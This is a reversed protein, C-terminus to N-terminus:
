GILGLGRLSKPADTGVMVYDRLEVEMVECAAAVRRAALAEVELAVPDGEHGHRVLIVSVADLAVARRLVRAADVNGAAGVSEQAIARDRADLFIARLGAPMPGAEHLHALIANPSRLVPLEAQRLVGLHRAAAAVGKLAAAGDEGLPNIAALEDEAAALATTLDGFGRLVAESAEAAALWGLCPVLVGFLVEYEVAYPSPVPTRAMAAFTESSSPVGFNVANV